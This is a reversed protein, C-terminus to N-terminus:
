ELWVKVRAMRVEHSLIDIWNDGVQQYLTRDVADTDSDRFAQAIELGLTMRNKDKPSIPITRFLDAVTQMAALKAEPDSIAEARAQHEEILQAVRPDGHRFIRLHGHRLYQCIVQDPESLKWELHDTLEKSLTARTSGSSLSTVASPYATPM